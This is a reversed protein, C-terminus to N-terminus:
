ESDARPVVPSKTNDDNQIGKIIDKNKKHVGGKLITLTFQRIIGSHVISSTLAYPHLPFTISLFDGTDHLIVRGQRLLHQNSRWFKSLLRYTTQSFVCFFCKCPAGERVYANRLQEPSYQLSAKKFGDYALKTM